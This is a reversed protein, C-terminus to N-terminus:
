PIKDWLIYFTCTWAIALISLVIGIYTVAKNTSDSYSLFGFILAVTGIIGGVIYIGTAIGIIGLIISVPGAITAIKSENM